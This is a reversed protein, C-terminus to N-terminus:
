SSRTDPMRIISPPATTTTQAASIPAQEWGCGGAAASGVCGSSVRGVSGGTASGLAGTAEPLVGPAAPM